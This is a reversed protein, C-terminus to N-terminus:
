HKNSMISVNSFSDIANSLLAILNLSSIILIFELAIISVKETNKLQGVGLDAIEYLEVKMLKATEM